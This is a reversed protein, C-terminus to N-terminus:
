KSFKNLHNRLGMRYKQTQLWTSARKDRTQASVAVTGLHHVKQAFHLRPVVGIISLSAFDSTVRQRRILAVKVGVVQEHPPLQVGFGHHRQQLLGVPVRGEVAATHLRATLYSWHHTHIQPTPLHLHNYHLPSICRNHGNVTSILHVSHGRGGLRELYSTSAPEM